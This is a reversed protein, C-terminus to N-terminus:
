WPARAERVTSELVLGYSGSGNCAPCLLPGLRRGYSGSGNCAPCLRLYRGADVRDLPRAHSATTEIPVEFFQTLMDKALNQEVITGTMVLLRWFRISEQREIGERDDEHHQRALHSVGQRRPVFKRRLRIARIPVRLASWLLVMPWFYATLFWALAKPNSPMVFVMVPLALVVTINYAGLWDLPTNLGAIM